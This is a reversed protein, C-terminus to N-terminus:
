ATLRASPMDLSGTLFARARSVRSKVTGVQCGVLEAAAEYTLGQAGVLLLAERQLPPLKALVASVKQLEIGHEQAAPATLQGAMVGDVDEVERKRKRCETYFQNRLITFAWAKFNSGPVFRHQNAWARVLTEQVLDEARSPDAILSFAFARLDPLAALLDNRFQSAFADGRATLAADFQAILDLHRQPQAEALISGYFAQLQHGLYDRVPAPLSADAHHVDPSGSASAPPSRPAARLTDPKM